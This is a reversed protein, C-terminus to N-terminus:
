DKSPRQAVALKLAAAIQEDSAPKELRPSAAFEDCLEPHHLNASVFVFAVGNAALHRALPWVQDAGVNIDLLAVDPSSVDALRFGEDLSLAEGAVRMGHSEVCLSLDLMILAEDEVILVNLNEDDDTLSVEVPRTAIDRAQM